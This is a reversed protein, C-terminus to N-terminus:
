DDIVGRCGQGTRTLVIVLRDTVVEGAKLTRKEACYPKFDPKAYINALILYDIGEIGVLDFTGDENTHSVVTGVIDAPRRVEALWINANEAPKGDPWTVKVPITRTPLRKPIRVVLGGRIQGDAVAVRRADMMISTGPYYTAGFPIAASPPMKSNISLLYTGPAVAVKFRGKDDTFESFDHMYAPLTDDTSTVDVEADVVPAGDPGLIRGRLYGTPFPSPTPSYKMPDYAEVASIHSAGQLVFQVEYANMHGFGHNKGAYDIRGTLTATVEYRTCGDCISGRTRPYVQADILRRFKKLQRDNKLKIPPRHTDPEKSRISLSAVPGSGPYTLWITCKQDGPNQLAFVEFGSIVKARLRVIKGNFSAPSRGVDCVSTQIIQAGAPGCLLLIAPSFTRVATWRIFGALGTFTVQRQEVGVRVGEVTPCM